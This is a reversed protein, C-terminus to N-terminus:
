LGLAQGADEWGALYIDSVEELQERENLSYFDEVGVAYFGARKATRLAYAADEFVCIKEPTEGLLDAAALYVEPRDKGTGIETCTVIGRFLTLLGLRALAHEANDRDGATAVAMPIGREKLLHLFEPAGPKTQAERYYYDRMLAAMGDRIAVASLPLRYRDRIHAAGEELSLPALIRDLERDPELGFGRVYRSGLDEWVGMSDILTGDLDFIAGRMM